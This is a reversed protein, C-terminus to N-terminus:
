FRVGVLASFGDARVGKFGDVIDYQGEIFFRPTIDFGALLRLGVKTNTGNGPLKATWLGVGAGVYLPSKLGLSPQFVQTITVPVITSSGRQMFDIGVRTSGVVPILSLPIQVDAGVKLWSDSTVDSLSSSRPLFIGAKLRVKPLIDLQAAAPKAALISGLGLLGTLSLIRLAARCRRSLTLVANEKQRRIETKM